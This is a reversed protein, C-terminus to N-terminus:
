AHQEERGLFRERASRQEWDREMRRVDESTLPPTWPHRLRNYGELADRECLAGCYFKFEPAECGCEGCQNRGGSRCVQAVRLAKALTPYTGILGDEVREGDKTTIRYRVQWGDTPEPLDAPGPHRRVRYTVKADTLHVTHDVSRGAKREVLYPGRTSVYPRHPGSRWEHYTLRKM